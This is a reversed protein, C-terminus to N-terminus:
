TATFILVTKYLFWSVQFYRPQTGTNDFYMLPAGGFGSCADKKDEGGVCMQDATVPIVDNYIQTCNIRPLIPLELIQQISPTELCLWWIM